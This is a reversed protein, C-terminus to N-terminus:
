ALKLRGPPGPPESDVVDYADIQAHLQLQQLLIQLIRLNLIKSYNLILNFNRILFPRALQGVRM